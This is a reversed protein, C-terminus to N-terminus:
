FLFAKTLPVIFWLGFEYFALWRHREGTKIRKVRRRKKRLLANECRFLEGLEVSGGSGQRRHTERERKGILHLPAKGKRRRNGDDDQCDGKDVEGGDEDEDIPPEAKRGRRSNHVSGDEGGDSEHADGIVGKSDKRIGTPDRRGVHRVDLIGFVRNM